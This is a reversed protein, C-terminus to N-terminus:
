TTQKKKLVNIFTDNANNNESDVESIKNRFLFSITNTVKSVFKDELLDKKKTKEQFHSPDFYSLSVEFLSECARKYYEKGFKRNRWADLNDVNLLAAVQYIKSNLEYDFKTKTFYM